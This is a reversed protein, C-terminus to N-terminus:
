LGAGKQCQADTATATGGSNSSVYNIGGNTAVEAILKCQGTDWTLNTATDKAPTASASIKTEATIAKNLDNCGIGTQACAQAQSAYGIMAKMTSGGESTAVYEQYAPVAVSALIGIIAVVIMLEILTFGKQVTRIGSGMGRQFKNM